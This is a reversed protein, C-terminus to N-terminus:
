VIGGTKSAGYLGAATGLGGVLTNTLGAGPATSQTLTSQGSPTRNLADGYTASRQYPEGVQAMLNKYNAENQAQTIARNAAGVNYLDGAQKSALEAGMSGIGATNMGVGSYDRGIGSQVGAINGYLNGIGGAATGLDGMLATSANALNGYNLGLNGIGTAADIGLKGATGGLQGTALAGQIGRNRSAEYAAQAAQAANLYGTNRMNAATRGQQELVNRQLEAAQIGSRAGGFAGASVANAAAQNAAIDGQRQIDQMAQQVAADEYPNMFSSVSSPDFMAGAGQLGAIGQGIYDLGTTDQLGETAMNQYATPMGAARDATLQDAAAGIMNAGINGQGIALGSTGYGGGIYGQGVNQAASAADMYPLYSGIGSAYLDTAATQSPDAGAVQLDPLDIPTGTLTKLNNLYATRRAQSVPDEEQIVRNISTTTSM